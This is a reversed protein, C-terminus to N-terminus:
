KFQELFKEVADWYRLSDGFQSWLAKSGHNGSSTPLFYSKDENPIAEYMAWWSEKENKASTIFTPKTINAAGESIYTASKGQNKFYEGPSFALIGDISDPNDGAYRLVLASSYSSGWIILKGEAFYQRAYKVAADIDQYANVYQTPKMADEAALATKNKIGNNEGGSRLDVAICNYGLRNLEPAIELYEGRSSRAQHFLVILPASKPHTLYIDATILLGDKSPFNVESKQQPSIIVLGLVIIFLNM